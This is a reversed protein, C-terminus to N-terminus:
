SSNGGRIKEQVWFNLLAETIVGREHALESVKEPLQRDLASYRRGFHLDVEIEAPQSQDWAEDIDYTDWYEGIEGYSTARSIRTKRDSMTERRARTM